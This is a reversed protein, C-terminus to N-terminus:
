NIIRTHNQLLNNYYNICLRVQFIIFTTLIGFFVILQLEVLFSRQYPWLGIILLLIRNINFHQTEICLMEEHGDICTSPFTSFLFENIGRKEM